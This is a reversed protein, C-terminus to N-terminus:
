GFILIYEFLHKYKINKFTPNGIITTRLFIISKLLCKREINKTKIIFEIKIMTEAFLNLNQQYVHVIEKISVLLIQSNM